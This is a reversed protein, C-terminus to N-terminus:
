NLLVKAKRRMKKIRSSVAQQSIGLRGAIERQLYGFALMELLQCDEEELSDFLIDAASFIRQHGDEPAFAGEPMDSEVSYKRRLRRAANRVKAPLRRKLFLAMYERKKCKPALKLMALYGEQMLDDFDAGRGEYRRALSKVLPTYKETIKQLAEDSLECENTTSNM